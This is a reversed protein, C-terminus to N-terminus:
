GTIQKNLCCKKYKKGSGCPCPENRGVEVQSKIYPKENSPYISEDEISKSIKGKTKLQEEVIRRQGPLEPISDYILKIAEPYELTKTKNFLEKNLPLGPDNNSEPWQFIFNMQWLENGIVKLFEKKLYFINEIMLASYHEVMLRKETLFEYVYHIGWVKGFIEIQNSGLFTDLKEVVYQDLDHYHIYFLSDKDKVKKFLKENLIIPFWCDSLIFPISYKERMYILFYINLSLLSFQKREILNKIIADKDMPNSLAEKICDIREKENDFGLTKIENLFNEWKSDIGEKLLSFQEELKHLYIVHIFPLEPYGWLKESESLPKWVSGSYSVAEEYYGFFLLQYLIKAVVTDIGAVPNKKLVDLRSHILEHDNSLFAFDTLKREIFEYNNFYYDPLVSELKVAFRLIEPYDDSNYEPTDELLEAWEIDLKPFNDLLDILVGLKKNDQLDNYYYELLDNIDKNYWDPNIGKAM